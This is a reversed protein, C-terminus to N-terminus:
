GVAVDRGAGSPHHAAGLDVRNGNSAFVEIAGLAVEVSEGFQLEVQTPATAVVSGQTPTTSELVAHASATQAAVVM